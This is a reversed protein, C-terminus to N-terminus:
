VNQNPEVNVRITGNTRISIIAWPDSDYRSETKHLIGNNRVMVKNVIHCDWKVCTKNEYRKNCDTQHQRLYGVKNWNAIIPMDFQLDSFTIATDSSTKLVTHYTSSITSTTNTFVDVIGIIGKGSKKLQM